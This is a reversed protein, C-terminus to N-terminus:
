GPLVKKINLEATGANKIKFDHVYDKGESMGGFDYATEPVVVAPASQPVSFPAPEQPAGPDTSPSDVAWACAACLWIGLVLLLFRMSRYM